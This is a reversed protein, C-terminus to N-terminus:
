KKQNKKARKKRIIVFLVIAAVLVIIIIDSDSGASKKKKDKQTGIAFKSDDTPIFTSNDLLNEDKNKLAFDKANVGAQNFVKLTSVMKDFLNKYASYHDKSVSFSVAVGLSEKVTALYRTYFGPVESALHMADIWQHSNINQVKNYVPESVQTGGGPIQFTKQKKLYAQYKDLSDDEGREKAALIIIAEKQRDKNDSQCIYETGEMICEWGQPLEFECYRNAFRKALLSNSFFLIILIFAIAISRIKRQLM